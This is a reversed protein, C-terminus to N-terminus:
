AARRRGEAQQAQRPEGTLKLVLTVREVHQAHARRDHALVRVAEPVHQLGDVEVQGRHALHRDGAGAGIVGPHCRQRLHHPAAIRRV